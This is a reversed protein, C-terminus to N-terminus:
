KPRVGCDSRPERASGRAEGPSPPDSAARVDVSRYHRRRGSQRSDGPPVPHWLAESSSLQERSKRGSRDDCEIRKPPAPERAGMGLSAGDLDRPEIALQHDVWRGQTLRGVVESVDHVARRDRDQPGARDGIDLPQDVEGVQM